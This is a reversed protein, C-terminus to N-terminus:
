WLPYLVMLDMDMFADFRLLRFFVVFDVVFCAFFLVVDVQRTSMVGSCSRERLLSMDSSGWVSLWSM